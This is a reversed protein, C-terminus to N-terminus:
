LGAESRRLSMGNVKQGVIKGLRLGEKCDMRYHVGLLVRSTANEQAMETFSQYTRPKGTFEQRKEHTRDTLNFHEGLQATLVEAAAAGFGAHGSPYSPFSPNDHLPSWETKMVRHIYSEPRERNFTYKAQWTIISIDCLALATKLYTEIVKTFPLNAQELAQNAISIWRGAPTVTLGPLDDSWLEAIWRNEKSLPHSLSFVEVADTYMASGPSEDFPLPPKVSVESTPVVFSRTKGWNPLLAPISRKGNPKWCGTCNEPEFNRDYNYLFADHGEKDNMSWQWVAKSVAQGFTKSQDLIRSDIIEHFRRAHTEELADIRKKLHNPTTPFFDRLIQAYAANLSTPLHFQGKAVVIAPKAYGPFYQELSVFGELDPLSAEYAAIEVYAFMRASVPPRYGPTYRELDLMLRNWALTTETATQHDASEMEGMPGCSQGLVIGLLVAAYLMKKLCVFWDKKM